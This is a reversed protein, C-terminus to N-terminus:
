EDSQLKPNLTGCYYCKELKINMERDCESCNVMKDIPEAISEQYVKKDIENINLGSIQSILNKLVINEQELKDLRYNIDKLEDQNISSKISASNAKSTNQRIKRWQIIENIM